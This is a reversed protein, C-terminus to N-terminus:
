RVHANYSPKYEGATETIKYQAGVPLNDIKLEEDKKMMVHVYGNGDSDSTFVNNGLKYETNKELKKFAVDFDYTHENVSFGEVQKKMTFGNTEIDLNKEQYHNEFLVDAHYNDDNLMGSANTHTTILEEYENEKVSYSTGEPIDTLHATEGNKLNVRGVGDNFVVDGFIQTGKINKGSLTVTFLYSMDKYKNPVEITPSDETIKYEKKTSPIVKGNEDLGTVIAYYGYGDGIGIYDSRFGFTVSDGDIDYEKTNSTNTHNGGGLKGSISTSHNNSATYNPHKGQWMCVWDCDSSEGGYIIKVHLKSAGDITVVDNINMGELYNGNQIGEDNINPTHSYKTVPIDTLVLQKGDVKKTIDISYYDKKVVRTDTNVIESPNEKTTVVPNNEKNSSTYGEVPDEWAYYTAHDDAVNFEYTWVDGDKTITADTDSSYTARDEAHVETIISLNKFLSIINSGIEKLTEIFGINNAKAGTSTAKYTFYGKGDGGYYAKSMGTERPDYNPLKYSNRFMDGDWDSINLWPESVYIRELNDCYSVMDSVECSYTAYRNVHMNSLDLEKLKECSSFMGNMYRAAEFHSVDLTEVNKVDNFMYNMSYISPTNFSSVDLSKLSICAYFMGDMYEVKATNFSSIDLSILSSCYRFMYSMNIVNSTDFRSLDLAKLDSCFDFMCSMDEVNSTVFSSLDLSELLSCRYFMGYMNKVNRTDFSSINLKNLKSCSGFMYKFSIVKSTNFKSLDLAKLSSCGNFIYSMNKVKATDFNSVNISMLSNCDSFMGEMNTIKSTDFNSLDISELAKNSSYMEQMSTMFATDIKNTDIKTAKDFYSFMYKVADSMRITQANTWYYIVNDKQWGYIKYRANADYFNKDLRVANNPVETESIDSYLISTVSNAKFNLIHSFPSNRIKSSYNVKDNLNDERWEVYSPIKTIDTTIHIVPTPREENTKNDKWVKKVIIKGDKIKENDVRYKNNTNHEQGDITYKGDKEIVVVHKTSEATYGTPAKTEQLIYTGSELGDFTVLGDAGSISTKNVKTGKNSTGKLSFEAGQLLSDDYSSQKSIQITHYPENYIIINGTKDTVADQIGANGKDDIVATYDVDNSIYGEPTGVEKLTYVGYEINEFRVTGYDDSTAYLLVENKYVSKGTLSFRANKVGLAKNVLDRKEFVVDGHIRPDDTLTVVNDNKTIEENDNKYIFFQGEDNIIVNYETKDLFYDDPSYTEKLKYTGKEIVEFVLNGKANTTETVDIKTNYDSTGYLRYKAGEVSDDSESSKKHIDVNGTMKFSVTTYDHHILATKENDKNDITTDRVYINNYSNQYGDAKGEVKDPAQMYIVANLTEGENLIYDGGNTNKSCDIAIAKVSSLKTNEDLKKWITSDKLDNNNDISLNNKESYYVVPAIGKSKLQTLDLSSLTGHWDSKKGNVSYNELSDYIIINKRKTTYSNVLRTEYSYEDKGSVLTSYSYASDKASKVQLQLGTLSSAINSISYSDEDYLFKAADTQKDLDIMYAKNAASMNGGNDAFGDTIDENGTEYAVPNIINEGYDKVSDWSMMVSLYLNYYKAQVPIDVIILDRGSQMYNQKIEYSFDNKSLTGKETEVQLTGKKLHTGKPLLDYFRGSDQVLYSTKDDTKITEMQDIKWRLEYAKKAPNNGTSLLHKNLSSSKQPRIARDFAYSRASSIVNNQSDTIKSDSFNQLRIINKDKIKSDIYKSSKLSMYPYIEIFTHYHANSTTVRFGTVNSEDTFTIKKDTFESVLDNNLIHAGDTDYSAVKQWEGDNNRVWFYIPDENKGQTDVVFKQEALDFKRIEYKVSWDVSTYRYDDKDLKRADEPINYYHANNKVNDTINEDLYFTDTTLEYNVKNKGYNDPNDRSGSVTYPYPYSLLNTYYKFKDITKGSQLQDLNYSAFDWYYHFKDYWNNNGYNQSSFRGVPYVFKPTDWRFEQSSSAVTPTDVQDVPTITAKVDNDLAYFDDKEYKGPDYATLVYSTNEDKTLNNLVNQTSFKLSGSRYGVVLLGDTKPNDELTLNYPQTLPDKLKTDIQWILFWKDKTNEPQTGWSKDWQRYIKQPIQKKVSFITASTNIYVPVMATEATETKGNNILSLHAQFPDSAEMDKYSFTSQSTLYSVEIYGHSSGSLVHRNYIIYNNHDDSEKYAYDVKHSSDEEEEKVAEEETPVSLEIYDAYEGNRNKLLRKPITIQFGNEVIDHEASTDYNIRYTFRHKDYTTTPTWVYRGQIDLKAGSAVQVSFNDIATTKTDEAKVPAANPILLSMVLLLSMGLVVIIHLTKNMFRKMM